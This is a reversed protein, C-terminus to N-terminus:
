ALPYAVMMELNGTNVGRRLQPQLSSKRVIAVVRGSVRNPSV